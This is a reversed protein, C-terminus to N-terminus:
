RGSDHCIQDCRGSFPDPPWPFGRLKAKNKTIQAEFKALREGKEIWMEM